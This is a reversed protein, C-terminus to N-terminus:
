YPHVAGAEYEDLTQMAELGGLREAFLGDDAEKDICPLVSRSPAKMRERPCAAIPCALPLGNMQGGMSLDLPQRESGGM